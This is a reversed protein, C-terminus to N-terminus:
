FALQVRTGIVDASFDRDAFSAAFPGGDVNVRTYNVSLRIPDVPTWILSAGLAKQKGGAVASDDLDLWDYRAAIVVGGPGGETLPKAVKARDFRGDSYERPEGTVSWGAEVYGGGLLVDGGTRSVDLWGHEAAAYFPGAVGAAEIGYFNETSASLDGTDVFRTDTAHFLPRQRYRIGVPANDFETLQASAGFHLQTSGMRPAWVIRGSASWLNSRDTLIVDLNDIFVGGWVDVDGADYRAQVGARRDFAFADTFSSRELFNGSKSSAQEDLSINPKMNGVTVEVAGFDRGVNLDLISLDNETYNLEIEYTLGGIDGEGGFRVRRFEDLTDQDVPTLVDPVDIRGLDYQIAVSPEFSFFDEEGEDQAYAPMAATLATAGLLAILNRTM